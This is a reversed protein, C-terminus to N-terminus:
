QRFTAQDDISRSQPFNLEPLALDTDTLGETFDLFEGSQTPEGIASVFGFGTAGYLFAQFVPFEIGDSDGTEFLKQSLRLGELGSVLDAGLDIFMTAGLVQRTAKPVQGFM